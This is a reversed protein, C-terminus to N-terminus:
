ENRLATLPDMRAARRAPIWSALIAVLLLFAAASALTLPDHPQVGYVQAAVLSGCELAAAMGAALGILVLWLSERLVMRSVSGPRAGLAVRIGIESTRRTVSYALVGYLGISALSLALLGFFTALRALLKEQNLSRDVLEGLTTMEAIALNPNENRVIARMQSLLAEPRGNVRVVLDQYGDLVQDASLFFEERPDERLSGVRADKVVGVIEYDRNEGNLILRRGLASGEPYLKRSLTENVVAVRNSKAGDGAGFARGALLAMGMADFYGSGVINGDSFVANASIREVGDRWARNMWRGGAFHLMSFGAARVGPLERVREVLRHAVNMMAQDKLSAAEPDLQVIVVREQDFGADVAQLKQLTRLFLGAGVMLFLAIAVQIAVLAQGLWGGSRSSAIGKGEKLSPAADMRTMRWAPGAGFLVGTLVSIALTFLLVRANPAVDLPTERPGVSVMSVLLPGGWWALMVGLAGGALALLVSETLLQRILRGRAAGLALRVAIERRRGSVRALLLNAINACAILLVLGVVVMLIQLPRSFTRRLESLGRAAPLLLVKVTQLDRATEASPHPGAVGRLWQLYFVNIYSQAQTMPVEPRKRGLLWLYQTLPDAPKDVWAQVQLQMALPTWLDPAEGVTTGFFDRAAVGIVAFATGNFTVTSGIAAPSRGLRGEWFRYSMVAVPHGGPRIDDETTLLRGAAPNVGLVGFYNGSVLQVKLPELDAGAAVRGHVEAPLSSMAAVESLVRHDKQLERYFTPSYLDAAQSPFGNAVGVKKGEGLSVLQEPHQVPLRRLVLADIVSFIATNAGVGLALSLVAVVTFGPNRALLRLGFRLDQTFNLM